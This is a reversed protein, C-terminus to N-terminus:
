QWPNDRCYGCSGQRHRQLTPGSVHIGIDELSQSLVRASVNEDAIWDYIAEQLERDLGEVRARFKCYNAKIARRRAEIRERLAEVSAESM